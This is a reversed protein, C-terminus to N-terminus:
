GGNDFLYDFFDRLPKQINDNVADRVMTDIGGPQNGIPGIPKGSLSAHPSRSRTAERIPDISSDMSQATENVANVTPGLKTRIGFRLSETATPDTFYGERKVPTGSQRYFSPTEVLAGNKFNVTFSMTGAEAHTDLEVSRQLNVGQAIGSLLADLQPGARYSRGDTFHSYLSRLAGDYGDTAYVALAELAMGQTITNNDFTDAFEFDVEALELVKRAATKEDSVEKSGDVTRMRTEISGQILAQVAQEEISLFAGDGVPVTDKNRDEISGSGSYPLDVSTRSIAEKRFLETADSLNAEGTVSSQGSMQKAVLSDIEGFVAERSGVMDLFAIDSNAADITRSAFLLAANRMNEDESVLSEQFSPIAGDASEAKANWAAAISSALPDSQFRKLVTKTQSDSGEANILDAQYKGLLTSTEAFVEQTDNRAQDMVYLRDLAQSDLPPNGENSNSNLNQYKKGDNFRWIMSKERETRDAPLKGTLMEDVFDKNSSHQNLRSLIAFQAQASESDDSAIGSIQDLSLQSSMMTKFAENDRLKSRISNGVGPEWSESQLLMAIIPEATEPKTADILGLRHDTAKSIVETSLPAGTRSAEFVQDSAAASEYQLRQTKAYEVVSDPPAQDGSGAWVNPGIEVGKGYTGKFGNLNTRVTYGQGIISPNQSMYLQLDKLTRFSITGGLEGKDDTTYLTVSSDGGMLQVRALTDKATKTSADVLDQRTLAGDRDEAEQASNDGAIVNTEDILTEDIKAMLESFESQFEAHTTFGYRNRAASNNEESDGFSMNLKTKLNRLREIKQEGSLEEDAIIADATRTWYNKLNAQNRKAIPRGEKDVALEIAGESVISASAQNGRMTSDIGPAIDGDGGSVALSPSRRPKMHSDSWQVSIANTAQYFQSADTTPDVNQVFNGIDNEMAKAMPQPIADFTAEWTNGDDGKYVITGNDKISIKDGNGWLAYSQAVFNAYPTGLSTPDFAPNDRLKAAIVDLSSQKNQLDFGQETQITLDVAKQNYEMQRELLWNFSASGQDSQSLQTNIIGLAETPRATSLKIALDQIRDNEYQAEEKDEMAAMLQHYRKATVDNPAFGSARAWEAMKKSDGDVERYHQAMNTEWDALNKNSTYEYMKQYSEIGAQAGRAAGGLVRALDAGDNVLRAQQGIKIQSPAQINASGTNAAFNANVVGSTGKPAVTQGPMPKAAVGRERKNDPTPM